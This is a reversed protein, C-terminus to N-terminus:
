TSQGSIPHPSISSLYGVNHHLTKEAPTRREHREALGVVTGLLVANYINSQMYIVGSTFGLTVLIAMLLIGLLGM